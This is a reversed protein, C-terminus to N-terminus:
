SAIRRKGATILKIVLPPAFVNSSTLLVRSMLVISLRMLCFSMKIRRKRASISWNRALLLGGKVLLIYQYLFWFLYWYYCVILGQKLSVKAFLGEGAGVIESQKVFCLRAEYPDALCPNKGPFTGEFSFETECDGFRGSQMQGDLWFGSLTSEGDPFVFQCKGHHKGGTMNGSLRSGCGFLIEGRVMEGNVFEGEFASGDINKCTGPGHLQGSRWCGVWESGLSDTMRGGVGDPDGDANVPGVYESGDDFEIRARKACGQDEM